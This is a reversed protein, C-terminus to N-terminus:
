PPSPLYFSLFLGFHCLIIDTMSWIVLAMYWTTTMQPGSMDFSIELFNEFNKNKLNNTPYFPLFHFFFFQKNCEMDWSGHMMHNENITCMHLIVDGPTTTKKTKKKLFFKGQTKLLYFPLFYDLIVFFETQQVGYRLLWVDYSQWKPYVVTFQDLSKKM